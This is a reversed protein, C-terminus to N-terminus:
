TRLQKADSAGPPMNNASAQPPGSTSFFFTSLVFFPPKVYSHSWCLYSGILWRM